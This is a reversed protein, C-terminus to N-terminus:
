FPNILYCLDDMIGKTFSKPLSQIYETPTMVTNSQYYGMAMTLVRHRRSQSISSNKDDRYETWRRRLVNKQNFNLTSFRSNTITTELEILPPAFVEVYRLPVIDDYWFHPGPFERNRNPLKPLQPLKPAQPKFLLNFCEVLLRSFVENVVEQHNPCNESYYQVIAMLANLAKANLVLAPNTVLLKSLIPLPNEFSFEPLNVISDIYEEVAEQGLLVICEKVEPLALMGAKLEAKTMGAAPPCSSAPASSAPAGSGTTPTGKAMKPKCSGGISNYEGCVIMRPERPEMNDDICGCIPCTMMDRLMHDIVAHCCGPRDCSSLSSSSFTSSDDNISSAPTWSMSCSSSDEGPNQPDFCPHASRCSDSDDNAAPAATASASASASAAPSSFLRELDKTLNTKFTDIASELEPLGAFTDLVDKAQKTNMKNLDLHVAAEPMGVASLIAEINEKVSKKSDYVAAVTAAGSATTSTTSGTTSCKKVAGNSSTAPTTSVTPGTATDKKIAVSSITKFIETFADFPDTAGETTSRTTTTPTPIATTSSIDLRVEVPNSPAFLGMVDKLFDPSLLNTKVEDEIRPRSNAAPATTPTSSAPAAASTSPTSTSPATSAAPSPKEMGKSFMRFLEILPNAPEKVGEPGVAGTTPRSLGEPGVATTSNTTSNATSQTSSPVGALQKLLVEVIDKAPSDDKMAKELGHEIAKTLDDKVKFTKSLETIFNTPKTETGPTTTSPATSSSQTTSSVSPATSVLLSTGGLDNRLDVNAATPYLMGGLVPVPEGRRLCDRCESCPGDSESESDSDSDYQRRQSSRTNTRSSVRPGARCDDCWGDSDSEDRSASTTPATSPSVSSGATAVNDDPSFKAKLENMVDIMSYQPEESPCYPCNSSSVSGPSM